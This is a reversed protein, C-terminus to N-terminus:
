RRGRVFRSVIFGAIAAFALFGVLWDSMVGAVWYQEYCSALFAIVFLLLMDAISPLFDYWPMQKRPLFSLWSVKKRSRVPIGNVIRPAADTM